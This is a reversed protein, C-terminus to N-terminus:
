GGPWRVPLAVVAAPGGPQQRGVHLQRPWIRRFSLRRTGSHFPGISHRSNRKSMTAPRVTARGPTPWRCRNPCSGCRGCWRPRWNCKPRCGRAGPWNWPRGNPWGPPLPLRGLHAAAIVPLGGTQQLQLEVNLWRGFPNAPVHLSLHLTASGRQLDVRSSAQLWRRAVHGLLVELDREQLLATRLVGPTARRPDHQRLLAMARAIDQHQIEDHVSVSPEAQLMSLTKVSALPRSTWSSISLGWGPGHAAPRPRGPLGVGLFLAPDRPRKPRVMGSSM